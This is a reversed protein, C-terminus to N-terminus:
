DGKGPARVGRAAQAAALMSDSVGQAIQAALGLANIPDVAIAVANIALDHKGVIVLEMSGNKASQWTAGIMPVASAAATDMQKQVSAMVTADMIGGPIGRHKGNM